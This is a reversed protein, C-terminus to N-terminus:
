IYWNTFIKAFLTLIKKLLKNFINPKKMLNYRIISTRTIFKEYINLNRTLLKHLISLTNNIEKKQGDVGGTVSGSSIRYMYSDSVDIQRYKVNIGFARDRLYIDFLFQPGEGIHYDKSMRIQGILERSLIMHPEPIAFYVLEKLFNHNRARQQIVPRKDPLYVFHNNEITFPNSDALYYIVKKDFASKELEKYIDKLHNPQIWDDSDIFHIFEGKAMDIGVNRAESVGANLKKVFEFRSDNGCISTFIDFSSKHNNKNPSGDDIVICQFDDFNQKKISTLCEELYPETNYLPVILTFFAM